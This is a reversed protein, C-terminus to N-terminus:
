GGQLLDTTVSYPSGISWCLQGELLSQQIHERHVPDVSLVEWPRSVNGRTAQPSSLGQTLLSSMYNSTGRDGVSYESISLVCVMNDSQKKPALHEGYIFATEPGGAASEPEKLSGLLCYGVAQKGPPRYKCKRGLRLALPLWLM